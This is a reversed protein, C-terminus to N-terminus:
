TWCKIGKCAFAGDQYKCPGNHFVNVHVITVRVFLEMSHFNDCQIWLFTINTLPYSKTIHDGHICNDSLTCNDMM